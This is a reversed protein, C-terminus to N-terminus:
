SLGSEPLRQEKKRLNTKRGGASLWRVSKVRNLGVRRYRGGERV